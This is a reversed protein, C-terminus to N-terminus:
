GSLTARKKQLGLREAPPPDLSLAADLWHAAAVYDGVAGHLEARACAYPRFGALREGDLEELACLGARPGQARGIALARAIGTPPTPRLQVLRDYLAAVADWDTPQGHIRRAHTLHIAALLQRPGPQALAGARDLLMVGEDIMAADWLDINQESLPIMVGQADLRAARRSEGFAILAAVALVEPENPLLQVLLASLRRVEPALDTDLSAAADQYAITYALELTSLVAELREAWQRREPVAFDIGAVRIKTKARGLRQYLTSPVTLFAPALRDIGVGFLIQLSLAVRIDSAIAPHCAAFILRLQDDPIPDPFALVDAGMAVDEQILALGAALAEGGRARRMADLTRRKATVFLWGAVNDPQREPPLRLLAEVADSYADEAIAFDRCFGVLAAIVRPRANALEETGMM